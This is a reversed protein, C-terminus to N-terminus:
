QVETEQKGNLYMREEHIEMVILAISLMKDKNLM